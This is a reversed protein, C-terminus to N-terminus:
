VRLKGVNLMHLDRSSRGRAASKPRHDDDLGDTTHLENGLSISLLIRLVPEWGCCEYLRWGTKEPRSEQRKRFASRFIRM